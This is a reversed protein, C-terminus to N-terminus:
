VGLIAFLVVPFLVGVGNAVAAIRYRRRWYWWGAVMWSVGFGLYLTCGAIMGGVTENANQTILVYAMVVVAFVGFLFSAFGLLFSISAPILRWRVIFSAASDSIEKPPLYPNTDTSEIM